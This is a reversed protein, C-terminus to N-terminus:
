KKRKATVCDKIADAIEERGAGPIFIANFGMEKLRPEDEPPFIGGMLFVTKDKIGKEKALEIVRSGLVLEGGCLTSIGVVDVDEQVATEIIQEPLSNGIYVVEMGSDRLMGAVTIAGRSHTELPFQALLVKTKDQRSTM